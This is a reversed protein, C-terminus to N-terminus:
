SDVLQSTNSLKPTQRDSFRGTQRSQLDSLSCGVLQWSQAPGISFLPFIQEERLRRPFSAAHSAFQPRTDMWFPVPLLELWPRFRGGPGCVVAAKKLGADGIDNGATSDVAAEIM